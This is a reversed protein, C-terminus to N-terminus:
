ASPVGEDYRPLYERDGPEALLNGDEVVVEGGVITHSPLGTLEWGHFTSYGPELTHYFEDDVVASKELDVIVMDADSGEAIAGKRPYLGWRKANNTSCVEVCREMSIRNKNVGESMM